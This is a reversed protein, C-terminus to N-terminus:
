DIKNSKSFNHKISETKLEKYAYEIMYQILRLILLPLPYAPKVEFCVELLYNYINEKLKTEQYYNILVIDRAKDEKVKFTEM